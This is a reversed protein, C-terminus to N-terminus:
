RHKALCEVFLSFSEVPRNLNLLCNGMAVLTETRDPALKSSEAFARLADAFRGLNYLCYGSQFHADELSPEISILRAFENQAEEFRNAQLLLHARAAMVKVLTGGEVDSSPLCRLANEFNGNLHDTLAQALPLVAGSIPEKQVTITLSDNQTLNTM